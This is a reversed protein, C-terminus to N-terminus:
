KKIPPPTTILVEVEEEKKPKRYISIDDSVKGIMFSKNIEGSANREILSGQLMTIKDMQIKKLRFTFRTKPDQRNLEIVLSSDQYYCTYNLKKPDLIKSGDNFRQGIETLEIQRKDLDIQHIRWMVPTYRKSAANHDNQTYSSGMWTGILSDSLTAKSEIQSKAVRINLSLTLVFLIQLSSSLKKNMM